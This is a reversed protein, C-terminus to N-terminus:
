DFLPAEKNWQKLLKAANTMRPNNKVYETLAKDFIAMETGTLLM